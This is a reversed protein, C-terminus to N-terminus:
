NHLLVTSCLLPGDPELWWYYLIYDYRCADYLGAETRNAWAKHRQGEWKDGQGRRGRAPLAQSPDLAPSRGRPPVGPCWARAPQQWLHRSVRGGRGVKSLGDSPDSHGSKHDWITVIVRTLVLAYNLYKAFELEKERERQFNKISSLPLMVYHNLLM